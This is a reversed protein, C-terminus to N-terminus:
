AGKEMEAIKIKIGEFMAEIIDYNGGCSNAFQCAGLCRQVCYWAINSRQIPDTEKDLGVKLYNMETELYAELEEIINKM